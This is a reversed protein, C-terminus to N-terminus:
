LNEYQWPRIEGIKKEKIPMRGRIMQEYGQASSIVDGKEDDCSSLRSGTTCQRGKNLVAATTIQMGYQM